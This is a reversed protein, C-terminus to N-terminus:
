SSWNGNTKANAEVALRWAGSVKKYVEKPTIWAGGDRAFLSCGSTYFKVADIICYVSAGSTHHSSTIYLRYYRYPAPSAVTYLTEAGLTEPNSYSGLTTWANGDSSGQLQFAGIGKHVDNCNKVSFATVARTDPFQMQLMQPVGAESHWRHEEEYTNEVGDFANWGSRPASVASSATVVYGAPTTASTMIPTIDVLGLEFASLTRSGAFFPIHADCWTKDPENGAGFATTLDVLMPASVYATLALHANNFDIRAQVTGATFTTRANRASYMQWQGAPKMLADGFFPEAIPFYLQTSIPTSPEQTMYMWWRAYYIHTPNLPIGTTTQVVVEGLAATGEMVFVKGGGYGATEFVDQVWERPTKNWGSLGLPDPILNTLTVM